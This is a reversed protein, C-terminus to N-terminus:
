RSCSTRSRMPVISIVGFLGKFPIDTRTNLYALFLALLTSLLSTGLVFVVTNAIVEFFAPDTYAEVYKDTTFRGFATLGESFSGLMLMLVPFVTLAGVVAILSWTLRTRPNAMGSM